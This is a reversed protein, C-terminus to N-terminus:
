QINYMWSWSPQENRYSPLEQPPQMLRFRDSQNRISMKMELCAYLRCFTQLSSHLFLRTSWIRETLNMSTKSFFLTRFYKGLYQFDSDNPLRTKSSLYQGSTNAGWMGRGMTSTLRRIIKTTMHNGFSFQPWRYNMLETVYTAQKLIFGELKVYLGQLVEWGWNCSM